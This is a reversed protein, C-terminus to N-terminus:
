RTPIFHSVSPARAAVARMGARTTQKIAVTKEWKENDRPSPGKRDTQTGVSTVNKTTKKPIETSPFIPFKFRFGAVGEGRSFGRITKTIRRANIAAATTTGHM